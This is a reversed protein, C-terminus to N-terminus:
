LPSLHHKMVPSSLPHSLIVLSSQSPQPHSPHSPIVLSSQPHSPHNLIVLSSYFHSTIVLIVLYSQSSRRPPSHFPSSLTKQGRKQRREQESVQLTCFTPHLASLVVKRDETSSTMLSGSQVRITLRGTFFTQMTSCGQTYFNCNFGTLVSMSPAM